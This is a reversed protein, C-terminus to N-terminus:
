SGGFSIEIGKSLDMSTATLMEPCVTQKMVDFTLSNTSQLEVCLRVQLEM